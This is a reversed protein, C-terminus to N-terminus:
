CSRVQEKVVLDMIYNSKSWISTRIPDNVGPDQLNTILQILGCCKERRLMACYRAPNRFCVHYIAWLAWLRVEPYHSVLLPEFPKFSRYTVMEREPIEWTLMQAGMRKMLELFVYEEDWHRALHSLIGAAFYSVKIFSSEVLKGLKEMFTADCLQHNLHPIVAVINNVLRLVNSEVATVGFFKDLAMLCLKLGGDGIVSECTLPYKEAFNWLGYLTFRLTMDAKNTIIKRHIIRFLRDIYPRILSTPIKHALLSCNVVCMKILSPDEFFNLCKVLLMACRTKDYNLDRLIVSNSITVLASKQVQINYPFNAMANLTSQVVKKLLYPHIKKAMLGKTLYYLCNMAAIQIDGESKNCNMAEIILRIIDPRPDQSDGSELNLCCLKCLSEQIFTRKSTYLSLALLIQSESATGAIKLELNFLPHAPDSFMENGNINVAGLFKLNPHSRVFKEILNPKLSQNGSVDFSVMHPFLNKQKMLINIPFELSENSLDMEFPRSIDLHRLESLQHLTIVMQQNLVINHMALYVLQHKIETLPSINSVHSESVDLHKINRLEKVLSRLEENGFNTGRVNFTHLYKLKCISNVFYSCHNPFFTGDKVDLFKLNNLTWNGLCGILKEVSIKMNFVIIVSINHRRLKELGRTTLSKADPLFIESLTCHTDDFIGMTVDNLKNKKSLTTLLRESISKPLRIDQNSYLLDMGSELPSCKHQGNDILTEVNACIFDVCMNKLSTPRAYM